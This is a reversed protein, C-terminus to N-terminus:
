DKAALIVYKKLSHTQWVVIGNPLCMRKDRSGNKEM